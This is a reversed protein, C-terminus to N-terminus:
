ESKVRKLVMLVRDSRRPWSFENPRPAGCLGQCITLTDGEVKWIARATLEREDENEYLDMCMIGGV